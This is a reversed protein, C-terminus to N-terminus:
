SRRTQDVSSLVGEVRAAAQRVDEHEWLRVVRWGEATLAANVRRDRQVNADLKPLWYDQNRAPTTGHEPCAHWFCGDVFVAVRVRTFAVDVRVRVGNSCLVLYDKRFRLGRQHLASRIAVEVKTDRRRNAKGRATAADDSPEPYPVVLGAALTLTRSGQGRTM